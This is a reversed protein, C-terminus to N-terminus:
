IWSTQKHIRYSHTTKVLHFLIITPLLMNKLLHQTLNFQIVNLISLSFSNPWFGTIAETVRPWSRKKWKFCLLSLFWFCLISKSCPLRKSICPSVCCWQNCWIGFVVFAIASRILKVKRTTFYFSPRIPGRKIGIDFLKASGKIRQYVSILKRMGLKMEYICVAHWFFFDDALQRVIKKTWHKWFNRVRKVIHSSM